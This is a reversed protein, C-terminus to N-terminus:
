APLVQGYKIYVSTEEFYDFKMLIIRQFEKSIFSSLNPLSFHSFSKFMTTGTVFSLPIIELIGEIWM